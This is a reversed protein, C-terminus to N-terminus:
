RRRGLKRARSDRAQRIVRTADWSGLKEALRDMRKCAEAMARHREDAERERQRADLYGQLAAQLLASRSTSARAAEQDIAKLLDEKLFVNVRAM